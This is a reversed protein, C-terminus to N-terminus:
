QQEGHNRGPQVANALVREQQNPPSKFKVLEAHCDAVSGEVRSHGTVGMTFHECKDKE